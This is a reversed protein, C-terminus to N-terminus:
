KLVSLGETKKPSLATDKETEQKLNKMKCNGEFIVGEELVLKPTKINGFVHIQAKIAASEGVILTGNSFIEGSIKGDVRVAGTFSFKGEFETDKGLFANIEDKTKKM